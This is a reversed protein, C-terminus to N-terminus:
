ENVTICPNKGIMATLELACIRLEDNTLGAFAVSVMGIASKVMQVKNGQADIIFSAAGTASTAINYSSDYYAYGENEYAIDGEEIYWTTGSYTSGDENFLVTPVTDSNAWIHAEPLYVIFAYLPVPNISQNENYDLTFMNQYQIVYSDDEGPVVLYDSGTYETYDRNYLITDESISDDETYIKYDMVGDNYTWAFLTPTQTDYGSEYQAEETKYYVKENSIVWDHGEYDTGDPNILRTPHEESDTYALEYPTFTYGYLFATGEAIHTFDGIVEKTFNLYSGNLYGSLNMSDKNYSIILSHIDDPKVVNSPSTFVMYNGGDSFLKVEIAGTSLENVEFVHTNTAANSKALLTRNETTDLPAVIFAMTFSSDEELNNNYLPFPTEPSLYYYDDNNFLITPVIGYYQREFININNSVSMNYEHAGIDTIAYSSMNRGPYDFLWYGLINASDTFGCLTAYNGTVASYGITNRVTEIQEYLQTPRNLGIIHTNKGIQVSLNGQTFLMSAMLERLDDETIFQNDPDLVIQDYIEALNQSKLFMYYDVAIYYNCDTGPKVLPQQTSIAFLKDGEDTIEYLGVERIDVGGFTEPIVAHFSVTLGDELLKKEVVYFEGVEQRLDTDYENPEYYEGNASGVKIKGLNLTISRDDIAAAVRELGYQTLILILPNSNVITAM